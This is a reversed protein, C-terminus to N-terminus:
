LGSPLDRCAGQRQAICTRHAEVPGKFTNKVMCIEYKVKCKVAVHPPVPKSCSTAMLVLSSLLLLKLSIKM